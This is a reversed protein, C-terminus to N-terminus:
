MCSSIERPWKQIESAWPTLSQLSHVEPSLVGTTRDAFVHASRTSSISYFILILWRPVYLVLNLFRPRPLEPSQTFGSFFRIETSEMRITFDFLQGSGVCLTNQEESVRNDPSFTVRNRGQGYILAYYVLYTHVNKSVYLCVYVSIHRYVNQM